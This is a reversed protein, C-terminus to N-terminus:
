ANLSASGSTFPASVIEFVQEHDPRSAVFTINEAIDSAKLVVKAMSDRVKLAAEKDGGFAVELIESETMGPSVKTM